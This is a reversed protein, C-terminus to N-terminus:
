ESQFQSTFNQLGSTTYSAGAEQNRLCLAPPFKNFPGRVHAGVQIKKAIFAAQTSIPEGSGAGEGVM